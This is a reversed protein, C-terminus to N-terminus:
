RTAEINDDNNGAHVLIERFLKEFEAGSREITYLAKYEEQCQEKSNPHNQLVQIGALFEQPTNAEVIFPEAEEYGILAHHSGIVTLGYSLAEAVKVKMGAGSFVPAVYMDANLFFPTMDEPSDILEVRETEAILQKLDKGPNRGAVVLRYDTLLQKSVVEKWVNEVFWKIGEANPGYYLSGTALIYPKVPTDCDYVNEHNIDICVPVVVSREALENGYLQIARNRDEETLFILKDATQMVKRERKGILWGNVKNRFWYKDHVSGKASNMSMDWEINHVRVVAKLGNKHAWDLIFDNYSFDIFVADYKNPVITKVTGKWEQYYRTTVGRILNFAKVFVSNKDKLIMRKRLKISEFAKEDFDPGVYDVTAFKCLSSLSQIIGIGGGYLRSPAEFTFALFDM